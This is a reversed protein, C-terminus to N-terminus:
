ILTKYLQIYEQIKEYINFRNKVDQIIKNQDFSILLARKIANSLENSTFDKALVGNIDDKIIDLSGGNPFSIVPTGSALAEITVQGFAEEISAM